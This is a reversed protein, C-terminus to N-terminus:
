RRDIMGRVTSIMDPTTGCCGGIASIGLGMLKKVGYAFAATTIEYVTRGDRYAPKGANPQAIVPLGKAEEMIEAIVPVMDDPGLSCNAGAAFLGEARAAGVLDKPSAGMYSRGGEGFTMTGLVPLGSSERAARAARSFEEADAFTELMIFDAGARAGAEAQAAFIDGAAEYSVDGGPGLLAGTPGIDLCALIKKGGAPGGASDNAPGGAPGNASGGAAAKKAIRVGERLAGLAQLKAGRLLMHSLDFTNSTVVDSGAEVNDRHIRLVTEPRWMNTEDTGATGPLGAAMLATGMAADFLVVGRSEFFGRLENETM